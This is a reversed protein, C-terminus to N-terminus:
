KKIVKSEILNKGALETIIVDDLEVDNTSRLLKNTRKNFAISYGRNLVSRPDLASLRNQQATLKLEANNLDSKLAERLRNELSQLGIKEKALMRHPELLSVQEYLGGIKKQWNSLIERIRDNLGSEIQDIRQQAIMVPGLPTKFVSSALITQLTEASLRLQWKVKSFLSEEYYSLQELVEAIDPVAVVGAKTPTSARADAVLDAITTDIEHGVASIIPIESEFIAWALPEKNFEWLDEMSGGGRGVILIDLKLDDNRNNIGIIADAIEEAAGDGQVRVSYLFLKACPWRTHISEEIDHVAAGSESTVIGIRMPYAPLPKKYKEEFLELKELRKVMQEFAVQLQGMGAPAMSDVYFQYKGQPPYVDIYGRALVEMGDEPEFKQKEYSSKFMICSLVSDEDKLTFYCHGSQHPKFSSIQGTVSLRSPLTNALASKILTNIQSVSYIKDNKKAM